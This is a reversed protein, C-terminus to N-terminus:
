ADEYDGEEELDQTDDYEVDYFDGGLAEVVLDINDPVATAYFTTLAQVAIISGHRGTSQCVTIRYM